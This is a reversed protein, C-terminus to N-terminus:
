LCASNLSTAEANELEKKAKLEELAKALKMGRATYELVMRQVSRADRRAGTKWDRLLRDCNRMEAIILQRQIEPDPNPNDLVDINHKKHNM